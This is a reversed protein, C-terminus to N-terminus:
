FYGSPMNVLLNKRTGTLRSLFRSVLAFSDLKFRWQCSILATRACLYTQNQQSIKEESVTLGVM